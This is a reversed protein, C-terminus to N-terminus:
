ENGLAFDIPKVPVIPSETAIENLKLRVPIVPNSIAPAPFTVDEANDEVKNTEKSM